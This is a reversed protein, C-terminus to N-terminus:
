PLLGRKGLFEVLTRATREIGGPQFVEEHVRALRRLCLERQPTDLFLSRALASLEASDARSVMREPVVEGRGLINVLSIFPNVALMRYVLMAATSLRYLVLMPKGFFALELTATGSAVLAFDSAAMQARADGEWVEWPTHTGRLADEIVPRFDPQCSSVIVRHLAPDLEMGEVLKSLLPMLAKVEQRRSGPFLGVVRGGPPLDLRERLAAGDEEASQGLLEDALPHGVYAVPTRSNRYLEVEFPLIVMLLDTLRLIKRRRWPAWGWIQPCIYYIVPIGRMRALRALIFHLGPFDVLVLAAPPRERILWWFRRILGLFDWLHGLFTVGMVSLDLMDRHLFCGARAMGPGGLGEFEVEPRLSRVSRILNAAHVDGSREGVSIFLRVSGSQKM